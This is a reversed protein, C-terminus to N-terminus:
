STRVQAALSRALTAAAAPDLRATVMLGIQAATLLEAAQEPDAAYSRCAGLFAARMRERYARVLEAADEDLDNLDMATNLMLCGRRAIPAPAHEFFQALGDFFAALEDQGAAPTELPALRPDIVAALYSEAARTFLARKSGYTEYLSSKSLGTAAQLQSLSTSAYGREWFVDRAAAVTTRDDFEEKTLRGAVYHEGLAAVAAQASEGVTDAALSITVGPLLEKAREVAPALSYKAEPVGKPRGLHAVVIVKAGADLLRQWTPLSARVRGDDTVAGTEKDLPVNLDSRVLIRKGALTGLEATLDDITKM